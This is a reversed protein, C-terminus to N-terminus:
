GISELRSDQASSARLLRDAVAHWARDDPTREVLIRDAGEADLSRLAAYLHHAFEEPQDPLALGPLNAPAAGISLVVATEGEDQCAKWRSALQARPVSETPTRPAYHSALAGSVRPSDARGGEDVAGVVRIIESRGIQGPRLIRVSPGTLDIITSEIGIACAGGDLVCPLAAGFEDHVHQATTPSIHGFRNASPAAVGDGFARLLRLALPHQPIRIGISDQGGTVLASIGAAKGLILTMPGPWFAEALALATAPVHDVWDSLQDTHALHVILPHDAPRGKLAFIRRVASDNRADGALGYVTETPMGVLEGRRLTAVADAIDQEDPVFLSM